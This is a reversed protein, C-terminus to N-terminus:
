VTTAGEPQLNAPTPPVSSTALAQFTKLPVPSALIEAPSTEIVGAPGPTESVLIPVPAALNVSYFGSQDLRSMLVLLILTLWIYPKKLGSGPNKSQSAM